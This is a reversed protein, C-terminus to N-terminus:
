EFIKHIVIGLITFIISAIFLGWFTLTINGIAIPRQMFDMIQQMLSGVVAFVDM